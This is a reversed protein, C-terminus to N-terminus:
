YGRGALGGCCGGHGLTPHGRPSHAGSWEADPIPDLGDHDHPVDITATSRFVPQAVVNARAHHDHHAHVNVTVKHGDLKQALAEMLRPLSTGGDEADHRLADAKDQKPAALFTALRQVLSAASATAADVDQKTGQGVATEGFGSIRRAKRGQAKALQTERVHKLVVNRLIQWVGYAKVHSLFSDFRGSDM